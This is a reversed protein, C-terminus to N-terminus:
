DAGTLIRFRSASEPALLFSYRHAIRELGFWVGLETALCINTLVLAAFNEILLGM